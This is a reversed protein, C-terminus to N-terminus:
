GGLDYPFQQYDLWAKMSRTLLLTPVVAIIAGVVLIMSNLQLVGLVLLLLSLPAFMVIMVWKAWRHGRWLFYLLAIMLFSGLGPAGIAQGAAIAYAIPSFNIAIIVWFMKHGRRILGRVDVQELPQTTTTEYPNLKDMAIQWRTARGDGGTGFSVLNFL